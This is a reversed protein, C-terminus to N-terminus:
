KPPVAVLLKLNVPVAVAARVKVNGSAEPVTATEAEPFRCSDAAPARVVILLGLKVVLTVVGIKCLVPVKAIVGDPAKVTPATPCCNVNCPVSVLVMVALFAPLPLVVVRLKVVGVLLLLMIKGSSPPVTQKSFETLQPKAAPPPGLPALVAKDFKALTAMLVVKNGPAAPPM